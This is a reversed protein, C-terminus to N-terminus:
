HNCWDLSNKFNRQSVLYIKSIQPQFQSLINCTIKGWRGGGIVAVQNPISLETKSENFLKIQPLFQSIM